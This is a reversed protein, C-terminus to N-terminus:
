YVQLLSEGCLCRGEENWVEILRTGDFNKHLFLIRQFIHNELLNAIERKRQLDEWNNGHITAIVSCGSIGAYFIADADAKTGIEDLAIMRPAFTRILIRVDQEKNGGTIVDTRMGCDLSAVGRYAGAIEGREDVVGVTCGKYGDSGDSFHRVIDRLFTTKGAGPASVLLTNWIQEGDRLWKMVHDAIGKMEHGIRINMYRIYKAIYNKENIAVLEGTIGVRHGGPMTLFGQKREEEYAYISDKCLYRLMEELDKEGFIVCTSKEKIRASEIVIGNKEIIYEKSKGRMILPQNVRIRIEEIEDWNWECKEWVFRLGIPFLRLISEKQM